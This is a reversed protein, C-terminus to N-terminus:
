FETGIQVTVGERWFFNFVLKNLNLSIIVTKLIFFFPEPLICLKKYTNCM